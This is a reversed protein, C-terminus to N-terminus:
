KDEEIFDIYDIAEEKTLLQFFKYGRYFFSAELYDSECHTNGDWEVIIPDIELSKVLTMVGNIHIEKGIASGSMFVNAYKGDDSVKDHQLKYAKIQKNLWTYIQKRELENTKM